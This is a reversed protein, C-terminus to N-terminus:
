QLCIQIELPILRQRHHQFSLVIIKVFQGSKAHKLIKTIDDVTAVKQNAFQIIIDGRKVYDRWIEQQTMFLSEPQIENIVLGKLDKSLDLADCLNPTLEQVQFGLRTQVLLSQPIETAKVTITKKNALTLKVSQGAKIKAIVHGFDLLRTVQKDNVHTVIDNSKIGAKDAPSDPIIETLKIGTSTAELQARPSIGLYANSFRCPLLWHSLFQEVRKIPIAFGIGSANRRIAQNIGILQADLNILPGGSNGPNIAADTQLIDSFPYSDDEYTRNIASLVGQSVSHELGFPNGITLVTEGLMVDDPKAFTAAKLPTADKREAMRILCLDNPADFGVLEGQCSEGNWLRIEINKARKVVHLNTLVLGDPDIIIGSGLPAYEKVIKHKARRFRFFFFEEFDDEYGDNVKVLTETGINVVWPLASSIARVTPTVRHSTTSEQAQLSSFAFFFIFPLLFRM